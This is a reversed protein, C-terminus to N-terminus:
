ATQRNKEAVSLAGSLLKPLLPDRLTAHTRSETSNAVIKAMLQATLEACRGAIAPLPAALWLRAEFGSNDNSDKASKSGPRKRAM